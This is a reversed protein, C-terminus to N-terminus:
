VVFLSFLRQNFARRVIFCVFDQMSTTHM